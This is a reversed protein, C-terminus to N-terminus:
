MGELKSRQSEGVAQLFSYRSCSDFSAAVVVSVVYSALHELICGWPLGCHQARLAMAGVHAAASAILHYKFRVQQCLPRSLGLVVLWFLASREMIPVLAFPVPLLGLSMALHCGASLLEVLTILLERYRLLRHRYLLLVGYPVLHSLQCLVISLRHARDERKNPSAMAMMCSLYFAATTIDVFFAAYHRYELYSM